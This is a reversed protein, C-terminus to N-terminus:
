MYLNKPYFIAPTPTDVQVLFLLGKLNYGCHNIKIATSLFSHVCLETVHQKKKIYESLWSLGKM